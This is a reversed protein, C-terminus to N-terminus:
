RKYTEKTIKEHSRGSLEETKSLSLGHDEPRSTFKKDSPYHRNWKYIVLEDAVDLYPTVDTREIFCIDDQGAEKIPDESVAAEDENFLAISYADTLIKLGESCKIIDRIVAADRSQRKGLFSVGCREDICIIIKM